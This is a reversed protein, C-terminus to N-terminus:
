KQLTMGEFGLKEKLVYKIYTHYFLGYKLETQFSNLKFFIFNELSFRWNDAEAAGTVSVTEDSIKVWAKWARMAEKSTYVGYM